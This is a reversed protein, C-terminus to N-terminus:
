RYNRRSSKYRQTSKTGAPHEQDLLGEKVMPYIYGARITHKNKELLHSIEGLSLYDKKCIVLIKERLSEQPSKTKEIASIRKGLTM